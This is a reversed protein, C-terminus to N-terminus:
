QDLIQQSVQEARRLLHMKRIRSSLLLPFPCMTRKPSVLLLDYFQLKYCTAPCHSRHAFIFSISLFPFVPFPRLPGRRQHSHDSGGPRCPTAPRPGGWARAWLLWRRSAGPLPGAEQPCGLPPPANTSATFFGSKNHPVSALASNKISLGPAETVSMFRHHGM